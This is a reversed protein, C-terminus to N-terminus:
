RFWDERKQVNWFVIAMQCERRNKYNDHCTYASYDKRELDYVRWVQKNDVTTCRKPIFRKNLPFHEM